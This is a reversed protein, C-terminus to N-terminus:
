RQEVRWRTGMRDKEAARVVLATGEDTTVWRGVRNRLWHGFTKRGAPESRALRDLVVSPLWDRSEVMFAGDDHATLAEAVSWSAGGFRGALHTLVQALGDDDGGAAARKGSEADFAGPIGTVALIGGVTREWTAYGDSQKRDELPRGAAVWARILVLLAWLIDNRHERVWGPLDKIKFDTRTEPNAMDPDILCTITRRVLDGGLSLNNGTIVWIRDNIYTLNRSAGLEREQIEGHATLIGALTSSKVVGTVNDMVVAPASTTTLITSTVKKWEAEDEPVESRWVGGHVTTIIEALLSKGSGPQHAGIGLMKYPPPVIQRLLPTLLMGLYNARDDDTGFPFGELMSFLVMRAEAVDKSMPEGPVSPVKVGQGPLFLYGTAGDYGAVDLVSGDARPMPTHTVGRLARLGVLDGAANVAVKAASPPFMAPVEHEEGSEKDKQIKYCRHLYQLKAALIDPTVPRIEAPGNDDADDRPPVYGLENVRPTHVVQGSRAFFGSLRGRGMEQELWYAMAAPSEILLKPAGRGKGLAAAAPDPASGPTTASGGQGEGPTSYSDQDSTASEVTWPEESGRALGAAIVSRATWKLGNAANWSDSHVGGEELAQELVVAADEEALYGGAVFRGLVRAAGGLTSNVEGARAARVAQLQGMIVKDAEAQTWDAAPAFPDEPDGAARPVPKATTAKRAPRVAQCLEILADLGPDMGPGYVVVDLEPEVEWRYAVDRGQDPGYKSSRVTPAIFVFGRGLGENDGAQLDVGKAPKGKALHTRAILHHRGDSPTAATGYHAPNAKMSILDFMGQIGGNRPDVDIVDFVVGTVMCLAMGPRWRNIWNHSAQGARTHQWENPYLFEGARSSDKFAAFIPVGMDALNHAIRIAEAQEPTYEPNTM